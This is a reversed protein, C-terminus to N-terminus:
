CSKPYSNTLKLSTTINPLQLQTQVHFCLQLSTLSLKFYHTLRIFLCKSSIIELCKFLISLDRLLYVLIFEFDIWIMRECGTMGHIVVQLVYLKLPKFILIRWSTHLARLIRLGWHTLFWIYTHTDVNFRFPDTSGSFGLEVVWSELPSWIPGLQDLEGQLVTSALATCNSWM